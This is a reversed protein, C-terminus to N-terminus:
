AYDQDRGIVEEIVPKISDYDFGRRALMGALRRRAVQPDLKKLRAAQKQALKRAEAVNDNSEYVEGVAVQAVDKKVGARMLEMMARRPGHHKHQAASLAKTKAFREDDIYGLRKLEDLVDDILPQSYEQRVLKKRLEQRSHLRGSLYKMARDLCEQRIEGQEIAELQQPSLEMGERLRFRAVVNLKVTFAFKGDLYIRRRQPKGKPEVIQTIVAMASM